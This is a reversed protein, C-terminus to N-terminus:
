LYKHLDEFDQKTFPKDSKPFNAKRAMRKMEAFVEKMNDESQKNLADLALDIVKYQKVKLQDARMEIKQKVERPISITTFTNM